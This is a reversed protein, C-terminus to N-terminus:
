GVAAPVRVERTRVLICSAILAAFFVTVLVLASGGVTETEAVNDMAPMDFRRGEFLRMVFVSLHHWVSLRTMGGAIPM